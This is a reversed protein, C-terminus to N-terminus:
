EGSGAREREEPCISGRLDGRKPRELESSCLVNSIGGESIIDAIMMAFNGVDAAERVVDNSTGQEVAEELEKVEKKLGDIFWQINSVGFLRWQTKHDNRRLKYEMAEGFETVTKRVQMLIVRRTM